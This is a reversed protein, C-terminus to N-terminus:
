KARIGTRPTGITNDDIFVLHVAVTGLEREHGPYQKIGVADAPLRYFGDQTRIYAYEKDGGVWDFSDEDKTVERLQAVSM